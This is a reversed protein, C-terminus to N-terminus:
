ASEAEGEASGAAFETDFDDGLAARVVATVRDVDAREAPPLPFGVSARLAAARGLLRAAERHHGALAEAGATGELAFAVARRDGTSLATELGERHLTLSRRADGRQEAILGLLGLILAKGSAVGMRDNWALWPLLHEEAADLDGRRRAVLALGTDAFQRATQHSQEAALRSAREHLDRATDLDGDLLAVRGLRSLLFSVQPWMRLEEAVRVGERHLRAAETYDGRIEALVGLQEASQLRGWRDGLDAFLAASETAARELTVLDGRYIAQSARASLAAATGWRDGQDRSEALVAEALDDVDALDGFGSRAFGLFWRARVDAEDRRDKGPDPREGSLWGFAARRVEANARLVSPAPGPIGLATDLSRRAETLRGRLYWYWSLAEALRLALGADGREACESLARRLNPTEADLVDLWHRQDHGYLHPAAREALEVHYETHCRRIPAAEGAEALRELGYAAISELLRYRPGGGDDTVTVLSRGVLQDLADLVEWAALGHTGCVAEAAELTCGGSFVALRRLVRREAEGLPEWSWDIAARLTRQRAPADRRGASLLRFRDDLREALRRVGLTRVRAAALELALPIGDLRRCITAVADADGDSLTLEPAAAGALTTFLRVAADEPLPPVAQVIEGAIALPQRTTALIRVEPAGALLRRALEAAAEVLHECNDLVLLLRRPRLAEALAGQDRVDLVAAVEEAVTDAAAGEPVSALEVLWVGDPFDGTLGGAAALALTTKGVGGPGTLTVLRASRLLARVRTVDDDRGVLGAPRAPLNTRPPTVALTPAQRLIEEHLAALEPGPDLGLEDALRDRLDAFADLAETQRGARYLARMHAARLRERLPHRTVLEGLEDALLVHEGLALRAEALDEVATLRQEELRTVSARAFEADAMDAFAPGRWLALAETLLDAIARPDDAHRARRVLDAFRGADVDEDAVRLLYGPPRREVLARGGPEARELVGRLQSIKTQLTNAPNAPARGEWVDEVLRDASVVRGPDTLLVALVARVKPEPVTVARGDDTWVALPGLVGFRM